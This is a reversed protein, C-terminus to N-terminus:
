KIPMLRKLEEFWNTVVHIQRPQTGVATSGSIPSTVLLRDRDAVDYYRGLQRTFAPDNSVVEASGIEPRGDVLARFTVRLLENPRGSTFRVYYLAGGDRSWTPIAGGGTSVTHRPMLGPFPRLYVEPRGSENSSYALWHGDPSVAVQGELAPSPFLPRWEGQGNSPVVGIDGDVAGFLVSGDPAWSGPQVENVSAGFKTLVEPQGTGDAAMRQLTWQRDRRSAVVVTKGDPSWVPSGDIGPERTLRTLTGRAVEVVWVDADEGVGIQVAVRTRDPSLALGTYDRAPAPVTDRRGDHGVFVLTQENSGATGPIYVLTGDDAVAYQVVGGVEVRVGDLVRVPGGQPELRTPDFPVAWLAGNRVFVLHGTPLLRGAAAATLIARQAGTALDLTRLEQADFNGRVGVTFLVTNGGPLVQPYSSLRQGEPEFLETVDGGSAPVQRLGADATNSGLVIRGDAGWDAGRTSSKLATTLPQVAGGAIAVKKVVGDVIFGVWQGDASVFLDAASETGSIPLGDFQDLPRRFLHFTTGRRARYVLTRGDPSLAVMPGSATPLSDSEPLTITFRRTPPASETARAGLVVWVAVAAAAIMAGAAALPLISRRRVAGTSAVAEPRDGPGAIAEHIDVLASGCERLRLKPDKALCRKLLRRISPPTEAPLRSWDPDSKLVTALTDSVDEGPFARTGTLMEYLVVGFAWVDARKDVPRGKAQEPAMYAATGLVMGVQTAALSLTPSHSADPRSSGAAPDVVKALGFDLVKVTGDPRLKINAPKLDRHVIGLEHAAELAEAIQRAIHLAEDLPLGRASAAPGSALREALTPGEVLEMVLARQNPVSDELGHIAAINPHNLAALVQAERQFRALRDADAALAAPLIKLAVERGLKTDRARYVEGMGGEGVKALVHYPGILDGNLM